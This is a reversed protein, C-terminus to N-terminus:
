VVSKRDPDNRRVTEREFSQLIKYQEASIIEGRDIIRQGSQVMGSAPSVAALLDERVASTKASDISLNPSLYENINCRALLERPFNITDAYVIYEYASRTSYLETIPRTVAETGEVVRVGPTREKAMQSLDASPVMGAEYVGRLMKDVHNLCHAPVDGFRGARWATEFAAIQRQAIQVDETYFPQFQSLASDREAKVEDPTKYVPFDFTAILSNYRWPRGQEYEYGFKTERPLFYVLLLVVVIVTGTLTFAGKLKSKAINSNNPM